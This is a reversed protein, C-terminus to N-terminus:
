TCSYSVVMSALKIGSNDLGYLSNVYSPPYIRSTPNLVGGNNSSYWAQGIIFVSNASTNLGKYVIGDCSNPNIQPLYNGAAGARNIGFVSDISGALPTNATVGNPAEIGFVITQQPIYLAPIVYYPANDGPFGNAVFFTNPETLCQKIIVDCSSGPLAIIGGYIVNTETDHMIITGTIKTGSLAKSFFNGTQFIFFGTSILILSFIIAGYLLKKEQM